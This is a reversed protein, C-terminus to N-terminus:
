TGSPFYFGLRRKQLSRLGNTIPRRHYCFKFSRLHIHICFFAVAYWIVYPKVPTGYKNTTNVVDQWVWGEPPTSTTM